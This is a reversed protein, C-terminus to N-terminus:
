FFIEPEPNSGDWRKTLYSTFNEGFGIVGWYDGNYVGEFADKHSLPVQLNVCVRNISTALAVGAFLSLPASIIWSKEPFGNGRLQASGHVHDM